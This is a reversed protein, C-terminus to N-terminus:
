VEYLLAKSNRKGNNKRGKKDKLIIIVHKECSTLPKRPIKYSGTGCDFCKDCTGIVRNRCSTCVCSACKKCSM